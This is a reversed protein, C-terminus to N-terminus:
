FEVKGIVLDGNEFFALYFNNDKTFKYKLKEKPGLEFSGYQKDSIHLYDGDEKSYLFVFKSDDPSFDIKHISFYPGYTKENFQVYHYNYSFAFQSGDSSFVFDGFSEYPGYTKDQFPLYVGVTSDEIAFRM